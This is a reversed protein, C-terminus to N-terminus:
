FSYRLTLLFNDNTSIFYDWANINTISLKYGLSSSFGKYIKYNVSLAFSTRLGSFLSLFKVPHEEGERPDVFKGGLSILSTYLSSEVSFRNNIPVFMDTRAGLSFLFAASYADFLGLGGDAINQNRYHVFIEPNPGLFFQFDRDFLRFSGLSYLYSFNFSLETVEATANNDNDVGALNIGELSINVIRSDYAQSWELNFSSTWGSYKQKSLFEDKVVIYSLGAKVSISSSSGLCHHLSDQAFLNLTLASFVILTIILPFKKM